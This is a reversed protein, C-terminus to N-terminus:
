ASASRKRAKTTLHPLTKDNNIPMKEAEWVIKGDLKVELGGSSARVIACHWAAKDGDKTAEFILIVEPDTGEVFAFVAGDLTEPLKGVDYRFLQRPLLRLEEPKDKESWGTFTATFRKVMEKMQLLRELPKAAPKPADPMPQCKLGPKALAWIEADKDRAILKGERMLSDFEHAV